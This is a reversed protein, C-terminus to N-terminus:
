GGGAGAGGAAAAAGSPPPVPPIAPTAGGPAGPAQRPAQPQPPASPTAPMAPTAPQGEAGGAVNLEDRMKQIQLPSLRSTSPNYQTNTLTGAAGIDAANFQRIGTLPTASIYQQGATPDVPGPLLLQGPAPLELPSQSLDTVGLRADGTLGGVPRNITGTGTQAGVGTVTPPPIYAGTGLGAPQFGPPPQVTRASGYFPVVRYPSGLTDADAASASNKIFDDIGIGPANGRFDRASRYPVNGRFGKGNSVNGTVIDNGNINNQVGTEPNNGGSGIRPNADLARGDQNVRYQGSADSTFVLVPLAAVAASLVGLQVFKKMAKIAKIAKMSD